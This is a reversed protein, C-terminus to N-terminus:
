RLPSMTLTFTLLCGARGEAMRQILLWFEQGHLAAGHDEPHRDFRLPQGTAARWFALERDNEAPAVDIVVKSLRSYHVM